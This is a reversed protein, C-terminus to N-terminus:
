GEPFGIILRAPEQGADALVIRVKALARAEGARFVANCVVPAERSARNAQFIAGAALEVAIGSAKALAGDPLGRRALLGRMGANLALVRGSGTAAFAPSPIAQVVRAWQPKVTNAEATEWLDLLDAAAGARLRGSHNAEDPAGALRVAIESALTRRNRAAIAGLASWFAGELRFARRVGGITLTRFRPSLRPDAGPAKRDLALSM